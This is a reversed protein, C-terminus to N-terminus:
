LHNEKLLEMWEIIEEPEMNGVAGISAIGYVGTDAVQRSNDRTIGGIAIVPIPVAKVVEKLLKTGKPPQVMEKSITNYIPGFAIYDPNFEMARDIEQFDHTSIGLKISRKSLVEKPYRELDKQGLHVGWANLRQADELSDNIIIKSSTAEAVPLIEPVGNIKDRFQVFPINLSTYFHFRSTKPTIAYLYTM